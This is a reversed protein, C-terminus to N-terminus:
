LDEAIAVMDARAEDSTLDQKDTWSLVYRGAARADGVKALTAAAATATQEDAFETVTVADTTVRSECGKGTDGAKAKCGSSTDRPNPLPWKAAIADVVVQAGSKAPEQPAPDESSGCGAVAALVLATVWVRAKM